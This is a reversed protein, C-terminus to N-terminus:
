AASASNLRSASSASCASLRALDAASAASNARRAASARRASASSAASAALRRSFYDSTHYTVGHFASGDPGGYKVISTEERDSHEFGVAPMYADPRPVEKQGSRIRFPERHDRLDDRGLM